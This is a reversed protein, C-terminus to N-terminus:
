KKDNFFKYKIYLFYKELTKALAQFCVKVCM